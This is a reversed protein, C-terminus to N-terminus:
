RIIKITNVVKPKKTKIFFSIVAITLFSGFILIVNKVGLSAFGIVLGAISNYHGGVVEYQNGNEMETAISLTWIFIIAIFCMAILPKKGARFDSYNDIYSKSNPINMKLFEFIEMKKNEDKIRLHESSDSGFLVEIYDKGNELNIEKLYSLPIGFLNTPPIKENKLQYIVNDIEDDKPNGKYITNNYFAIIKDDGKTFSKWIM